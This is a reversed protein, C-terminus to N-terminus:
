LYQICVQNVANVNCGMEIFTEACRWNQEKCMVLLPTNGEDDLGEIAEINRNLFEVVAGSIELDPQHLNVVLNSNSSNNYSSSTRYFSKANKSNRREM